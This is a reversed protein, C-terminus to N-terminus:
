RLEGVQALQHTLKVIEDYFQPKTVKITQQFTPSKSQGHGMNKDDFVVIQLTQDERLYFLVDLNFAILRIVREGTEPVTGSFFAATLILSPDESFKKLVRSLTGFSAQIWQLSRAENQYDETTAGSVPTLMFQQHMELANKLTAHIALNMLSAAEGRSPELTGEGTVKDNRFFRLAEKNQKVWQISKKEKGLIEILWQRHSPATLDFNWSVSYYDGGQPSFDLFLEKNSQPKSKFWRWFSM